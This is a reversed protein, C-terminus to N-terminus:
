IWLTWARRRRGLCSCKLLLVFVLGFLCFFVGDEKYFIRGVVFKVGGAVGGADIPKLTRAFDPLEEKERIIKLAVETAERTFDEMLACTALSNELTRESCLLQIYESHYDRAPGGAPLVPDKKPIVAPAVPVPKTVENKKLPSEYNDPTDQNDGEVYNSSSELNQEGSSQVYNGSSSSMPNHEYNGGYNGSSSSMPNDEYNGGYNVSSSSMPNDEYNGCTYADKNGGVKEDEAAEYNGATSPLDEYAGSVVQVGDQEYNEGVACSSSLSYYEM